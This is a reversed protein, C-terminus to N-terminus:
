IVGGDATIITLVGRVTIYENGAEDLYCREHKSMEWEPYRTLKGIIKHGFRDAQEYIGM